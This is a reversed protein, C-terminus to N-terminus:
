LSFFSQLNEKTNNLWRRWIDTQTHLIAIEGEKVRCSKSTGKNDKKASQEYKNCCICYHALPTFLTPMYISHEDGTLLIYRLVKM